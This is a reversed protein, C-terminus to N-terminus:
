ITLIQGVECAAHSLNLLALGFSSCSACRNQQTSNLELANCPALLEIVQYCLEARARVTSCKLALKVIEM